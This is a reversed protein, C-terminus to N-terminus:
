GVLKLHKWLKRNQIQSVVGCAIGYMEGVKRTTLKGKLAIIERVQRETLKASHSREGLPILGIAVAHRVNGAQTIYELNAAHNNRSNGDIHNVQLGEGCPGLFAAAVLRHIYVTRRGKSGTGDYLRVIFYGAGTNCLVASIPGIRGGKATKIRRIGGASSVEYIGEYGVVPRWEEIM